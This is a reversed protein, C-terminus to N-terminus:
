EFANGGEEHAEYGPVTVAVAEKVVFCLLDVLELELSSLSTEKTPLLGGFKTRNNLVM